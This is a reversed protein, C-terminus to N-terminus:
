RVYSYGSPTFRIANDLIRRLTDQVLTRDGHVQPPISPEIAVDFALGKQLALTGMLDVVERIASAPDFAARPRRLAPRNLEALDDASRRLRDAIERCGALYLSQQKSLPEQGALAVLGTIHHVAERVERSLITITSEM